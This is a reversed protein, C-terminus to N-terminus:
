LSSVLAYNIGLSLHGYKANEAMETAELKWTQSCPYPVVQQTAKPAVPLKHCHHFIKALEWDVLKVVKKWYSDCPICHVAITFFFFDFSSDIIDSVTQSNYIEESFIM